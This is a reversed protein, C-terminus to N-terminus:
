YLSGKTQHGNSTLPENQLWSALFPQEIAGHPVKKFHM